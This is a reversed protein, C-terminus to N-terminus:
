PKIWQSSWIESLKRGYGELYATLEVTTGSQGKVDVVIRWTGDAAVRAFAVHAIEGNTANVVPKITAAAEPPLHTLPGGKFDVVFKRTGDTNEVGSVGGEGARSDAVYALPGEEDPILEGWSLRYSYERTEGGKIVGDPIWFAAINDNVELDTPIEVLRVHGRGWDGIPEVKLSPRTEYHAAADEFHHFDRHRQYLGFSRLSTEGYFSSALNLPNALPRWIRRGDAAEILLGDSDHVRPRYDDFRERNAPGFLFMSTLPAVGLQAIDTRLYLRGTVEMETIEGPTIVFRYAGTLSPSDMTAYVTVSVAGPAPKEVYFRDFVPFEEAVSTATNVAIGRASLGYTTGRGLARFYSAGQFVTLEDFVDPRNLPNHLRFGAVGPLQWDAPVKEGVEREYIFDERSFTMPVAQGNVVEFMLVPTRYLWGPHFAQLKFQTTEVEAFRARDPNYRVLRYLDYDLEALFGGVEVPAVYPLLAQQRMAESLSEFDFPQSAPPGVPKSAADQAPAAADQAPAYGAFAVGALATGSALLSRRTMRTAPAITTEDLDTVSMSEARGAVRQVLTRRKRTGGSGAHLGAEGVAGRKHM